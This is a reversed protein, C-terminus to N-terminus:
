RRSTAPPAPVSSAISCAVRCSPRAESVVAMTLLQANATSSNESYRGDAQNPPRSARVIATANRASTNMRGAVILSSGANKEASRTRPM